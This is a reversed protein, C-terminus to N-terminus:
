YPPVLLLLRAYLLAHEEGRQRDQDLEEGGLAARAARGGVGDQGSQVLLLGERAHLKEDEGLMDVVPVVEAPAIRPGVREEAVALAAVAPAGIGRLCHDVAADVDEAGVLLADETGGLSGGLLRVADHL